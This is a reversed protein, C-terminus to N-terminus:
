LKTQVTFHKTKSVPKTERITVRDGVILPLSENHVAFRKTKRIAKKYLPHRFFSTVSVIVTKATKVSVIEGTLVKGQKM